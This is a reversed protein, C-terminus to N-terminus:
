RKIATDTGTIINPPEFDDDTPQGCNEHLPLFMKRERVVRGDGAINDIDGLYRFGMKLYLQYAAENTLVTTLLIGDKKYRKADQILVEMMKKGLGKGQYADDIGIGLIPFTTNFKWLFFYGVVKNDSLTIYILDIGKKNREVFQLITDEDYRHPLFQSRTKESLNENFKILAHVDSESLKKIYFNEGQKSKLKANNHNKEM